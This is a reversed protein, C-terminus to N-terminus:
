RVCNGRRRVDVAVRRPGLTHVCIADVVRGTRRPVSWGWVLGVHLVVYLIALLTAVDALQFYQSLFLWFTFFSGLWLLHAFSYFFHNAIMGQGTRLHRRGILIMSLYLMLATLGAFYVLSAFSLVGRGFDRLQDGMGWHKVMQAMEGSFVLNAGDAFVLPPMSCLGLVFAVTLNSTLFSAVMGVALMTVGVLWYGAYTGLFLGVDPNGLWRLVIFNSVLSFALSVTYIGVVALYKGLVIELDGAPITLLLEDTGQRREDAWISMTIAPVFFLMIWPFWGNLQDLNALNTNFFGKSWFAAFATLLVFVCIFLYGLPSIFYASFNRKFVALLVKLNM